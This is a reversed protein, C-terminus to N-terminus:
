EKLHIARQHSYLRTKKMSKGANHKAAYEKDWEELSKSIFRKWLWDLQGHEIRMLSGDMQFFSPDDKHKLLLTNNSWAKPQSIFVVEGKKYEWFKEINGCVVTDSDMYLLEGKYPFEESMIWMKWWWWYLPYDPFSHAVIGNDLGYMNDTLCIMECDANRKVARYLRNLDDSSYNDGDKITVVYKM